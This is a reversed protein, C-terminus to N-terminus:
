LCSTDIAEALLSEGCLYVMGPDCSNRRIYTIPGVDYRTYVQYCQPQPAQTTMMCDLPADIAEGLTRDCLYYETHCSDRSVIKVPGVERESYYQLCQPETPRAGVTPAVAVALLGALMLALTGFRM